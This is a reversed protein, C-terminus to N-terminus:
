KLLSALATEAETHLTPPAGSYTAVADGEGDFLLLTPVARVDGFARVVELRQLALLRRRDHLAKDARELIPASADKVQVWFEDTSTNNKLFVSWRAIEAALPDASPDATAAGARPPALVLAILLACVGSSVARITM